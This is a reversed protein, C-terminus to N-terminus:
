GNMAELEALQEKTFGYEKAMNSMWPDEEIKNSGPNQAGPSSLLTPEPKRHKEEEELVDSKAMKWRMDLESNRTAESMRVLPTIDVGVMLKDFLPEIKAFRPDSRQKKTKYLEVITNASTQILPIAEQIMAQRDANRTLERIKRAADVPSMLDLADRDAQSMNDLPDVAQQQQRPQSAMIQQYANVLAGSLDAVPIAPAAAAPPPAPPTQSDTQDEPEPM